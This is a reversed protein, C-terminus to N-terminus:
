RNDSIKNNATNKTLDNNNKINNMIQNRFVLYAKCGYDTNGLLLKLDEVIQNGEIVSLEEFKMMDIYDDKKMQLNRTLDIVINVGEREIEIISHLYKANGIVVYGTVVKSGDISPAIIM